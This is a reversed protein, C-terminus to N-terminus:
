CMSLGGALWSVLWSFEHVRIDGRNALLIVEGNVLIFIKRLTSIM